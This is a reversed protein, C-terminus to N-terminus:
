HKIQEKAKKYSGKKEEIDDVDEDEDEDEILGLADRIWESEFWLLDNLETMTLGDPYIDELFFELDDIKDAEEIDNWTDIAGSWPTYDSIDAILKLSENLKKTFKYFKKSKTNNKDENVIKYGTEGNSFRYAVSLETLNFKKSIEEYLDKVFKKSDDSLYKFYQEDVYLQAGQFYGPEISIKVDTLINYEDFNDDYLESAKSIIKENADEVMSELEEVEYEDLVCINSYYKNMYEEFFDEYIEYAERDDDAYEGNKKNYEFAEDAEYRVEDYTVFIYLPLEKMNYFNSTNENLANKGEKLTSQKSEKVHKEDEVLEGYVCPFGDADEFYEDDVCVKKDLISKGYPNIDEDVEYEGTYTKYLIAERKEGDKEFKIRLSNWWLDLVEKVTMNCTDLSEVKKRSLFSYSDEKYRVYGEGTEENYDVELIYEPPLFRYTETIYNEFDEESKFFMGKDEYVEEWFDSSPSTVKENLNESLSEKIIEKKYDKDMQSATEAKFGDQKLFEKVHRLTTPSYNWLSYNYGRSNGLGLTVEGDKIMAVKSGYSYLVKTGDEKEDVFAKGYFSQRSDYRPYLEYIDEDLKVDKKVIIHANEDVDYKEKFEKYMNLLEKALYDYDADPAILFEMDYVENSDEFYPSVYDIDYDTQMDDINVKIGAVISWTPNDVDQIVDDREEEGFGSSWGIAVVLNEDGIDMEGCTANGNVLAKVCEKLFKALKDSTSEKLLKLEKDNLGRTSEKVIHQHKKTLNRLNNMKIEKKTDIQPQALGEKTSKEVSMVIEIIDSASLDSSYGLLKSIVDKATKMDERSIDKKVEDFIWSDISDKKELCEDKKFQKKIYFKDRSKGQLMRKAIEPYIDGWNGPGAFEVIYDKFASGGKLVITAFEKLQEENLFVCNEDEDVVAYSWLNPDNDVGVDASSRKKGDFNFYDYVSEDSIRPGRAEKINVEKDEKIDTKKLGRIKNRAALTSTEKEIFEANEDAPKMVKKILTKREIEQKDLEKQFCTNCCEEKVEEKKKLKNKMSIRKNKVKNDEM